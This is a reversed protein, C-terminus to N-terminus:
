KITFRIQSPQASETECVVRLVKKEDGNVFVEREAKMVAEKKKSMARRVNDSQGMSYGALDRVIQMVQEQYVMCGYTVNLIPELAHHLYRIHEPNKKNEVYTDIYQMPGPRYLSIGAIIDEFTDPRLNQMFSRMGASELQFVGLTDGRSILAYVNPDDFGIENLKVDIERSHKVNELTHNIVTLNRLGLFDMKLLGLEEVTTMTFQTAINGDNVYLPVYNM